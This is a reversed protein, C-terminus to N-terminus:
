GSSPTTSFALFPPSSIMGWSAKVSNSRNIAYNVTLNPQWFLLSTKTAGLVRYSQWM